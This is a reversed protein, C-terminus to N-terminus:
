THRERDDGCHILREPFSHPGIESAIHSEVCIPATTRQTEREHPITNCRHQEFEKKISKRRERSSSRHHRKKEFSTRRATSSRAPTWIRDTGASSFVTVFRRSMNQARLLLLLLLLLPQTTLEREFSSFFLPLHFCSSWFLSRRVNVIECEEESVVVAEGKSSSESASTSPRVPFSSSSSSAGHQVGTVRVGDVMRVPFSISPVRAFLVRSSSSVM